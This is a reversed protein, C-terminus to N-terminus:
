AMVSTKTKLFKHYKQYIRLIVLYWLAKSALQSPNLQNKMSKKLLNLKIPKELIQNKKSRKELLKMLKM